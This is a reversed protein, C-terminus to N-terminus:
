SPPGQCIQVLMMGKMKGTKYSRQLTAKIGTKICAVSLLAICVVLVIGTIVASLWPGSRNCQKCENEALFHKAACVSCLPGSYACGCYSDDDDPPDCISGNGSCADPFACKRM